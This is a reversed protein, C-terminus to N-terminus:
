AGALWAVVVGPFSHLIRLCKDYNFPLNCDNTCQPYCPQHCAILVREGRTSAGELVQRLWQLQTDSFQGNYPVFRRQLWGSV